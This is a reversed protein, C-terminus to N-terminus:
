LSVYLEVLSELSVSCLRSDLSVREKIQILLADELFGVFPDMLFALDEFRGQLVLPFAMPMPTRPCKLLAERIRTQVVALPFADKYHAKVLRGSTDWINIIALVDTSIFAQALLAFTEGSDM